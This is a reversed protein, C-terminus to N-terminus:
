VVGSGLRYVFFDLELVIIFSYHNESSLLGASRATMPFCITVFEGLGVDPTVLIEANSVGM